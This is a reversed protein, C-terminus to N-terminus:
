SKSLQDYITNYNFKIYNSAAANQQLENLICQFAVLDPNSDLAVYQGKKAKQGDITIDMDRFIVYKGIVHIINPRKNLPTPNNSYFDDIHKIITKIQLGDSAYIIKYPWDEYNDLYFDPHINNTLNQKDPISAINKLSDILEKKDLKSKISAVGLCGDVPVFTKGNEDKKLYDFRPSTDTSIIVDLQKSESGDEGFLYGGLFVNSKSPSHRRLFNAFTLERHLGIDSSNPYISAIKAEAELAQAVKLFYDRLRDYFIEAM